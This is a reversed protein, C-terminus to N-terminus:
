RSADEVAIRIKEDLEVAIRDVSPSGLSKFVSSPQDYAVHVGSPDQYIAVRFPAYLAAAPELATVDRAVVPNGVLYLTAHLPQGSLSLLAGSDLRALAVLGTPGATRDVVAEVEKWSAGSLVLEVMVSPELLPVREDLRARTENFDAASDYTLCVVGYATTSPNTSSSM